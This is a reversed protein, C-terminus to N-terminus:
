FIGNTATKPNPRSCKGTLDLKKERTMVRGAPRILVNGFDRQALRTLDPPPRFRVPRKPNISDPPKELTARRIQEGQGSGSGRCTVRGSGVRSLQGSGIRSLHGSVVRSLQGSGVRSLHGSGVRSLHGSGRFTFRGSGRLTARGSGHITARGLGLSRCPILLPSTITM